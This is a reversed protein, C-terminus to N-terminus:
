LMKRYDRLVKKKSAGKLMHTIEGEPSVAAKAYGVMGKRTSLNEFLEEQSKYLHKEKGFLRPDDAEVVTRWNTGTGPSPPLKIGVISKGKVIRNEVAQWRDLQKQKELPSLNSKEIGEKVIDISAISRERTGMVNLESTTPMLTELTEKYRKPYLHHQEIGSGVPLTKTIKGKINSPDLDKKFKFKEQAYESKIKELGKGKLFAKKYFSISPAHTKAPGSVPAKLGAIEINSKKDLLPFGQDDSLKVIISSHTTKPKYKSKKSEVAWEEKMQSLFSDHDDFKDLNDAYFKKIWDTRHGQVEKASAIAREPQMKAERKFDLAEQETDFYHTKAKKEGTPGYGLESKYKSRVSYRGDPLKIPKGMERVRKYGQTTKLKEALTQKETKSMESWKKKLLNGYRAQADAETFKKAYNTVGPEVIGGAKFQEQTLAPNEQIMRRAEPINFPDTLHSITDTYDKIRM